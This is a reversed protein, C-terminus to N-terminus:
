PCIAGTTKPKKVVIEVGFVGHGSTLKKTLERQDGNLELWERPMGDADLRFLGYSPFVAPKESPTRKASM